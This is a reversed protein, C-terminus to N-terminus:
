VRFLLDWMFFEESGSHLLSLKVESTKPCRVQYYSSGLPFPACPVNSGNNHIQLLWTDYSVRELLLKQRQSQLVNM